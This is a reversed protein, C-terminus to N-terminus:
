HPQEEEADPETEAEEPPVSEKKASLDLFGDPVDVAVTEGAATIFKVPILRGDGLEMLEGAGYNQYGAIVGLPAGEHTVTRGVLDALYIEDTSPPLQDRTVYLDTGKLAESQNRDTVSKFTIILHDKAPVLKTIEFRRGDSSQLAKYVRLNESDTKIKVQGRLGHPGIIRGILILAM